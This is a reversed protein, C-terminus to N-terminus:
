RPPPTPQLGGFLLLAEGAAAKVHVRGAHADACRGQVDTWAPVELPLAAVPIAVDLADGRNAVVITAQESDFRAFAFWHEGWALVQMAGERWERRQARRQSLARVHALLDHDWSQQTWDMCRRCDPDGGGPMGVEDGYYICPVGPCTFLLTMAILLPDRRGHLRTAIRPTDHSGLLNLQALQNDYPVTSRAQAMWRMCEEADIAGPHDSVDHGGLWAWLPQAFGYYNMAGDEQDSQLWRTAEAFHEGLIFADPNEQKIAARMARLHAANRWAGPGEGLMHIVDLRWGDIAYPPRLWHRLIANPSGYVAERVGPHAFDLVPLSAHGKWGLARGADDFAYWGRWPSDPSQAAGLTAHTGWRNFWPHNTGTHNVVADLMLRMGRRHMGEALEALATNGGLEPDVHDYDETDYRHNSGATFVPNLYVASAGVAHQVHDLRRALGDLDGGYFTNQTQSRDLPTGWAPQRVPLARAGFVQEGSRDRPPAARDFRDPFVQYFIQERVWAPPTYRSVRFLVSEAPPHPHMGDAALWTQRRGHLVKFAYRTNTNGDDWPMDAQWCALAGCRGAPQMTILQEENDPMARLFVADLADQDCLLQVRCGSASRVLWPAIPPHLLQM